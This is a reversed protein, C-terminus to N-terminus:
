RKAVFCILFIRVVFVRVQEVSFGSGIVRLVAM